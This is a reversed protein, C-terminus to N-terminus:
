LISNARKGRLVGVFKQVDPRGVSGQWRKAQIYIVDLGLKDEKINGNICEDGNKGISQGVDKISGGYGKKVPLRVV